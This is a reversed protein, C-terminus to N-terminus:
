MHIYKKILIKTKELYIELLPIESNYPLEIKLKKLSDGCRKENHNYWNVYEGVTYSSERKEMGEGANM